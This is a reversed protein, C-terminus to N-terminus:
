CFIILYEPYAQADTFVVFISPNSINEVVSEFVLNPDKTPDKAPPIIMNQKGLTYEGTLVGALYMYKHGNANPTSYKDQASYM